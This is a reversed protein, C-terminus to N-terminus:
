KRRELLETALSQFVGTRAAVLCKTPTKHYELIIGALEGRALDPYDHDPTWLRWVAGGSMGQPRKMQKIVGDQVANEPDFNIPLHLDKSLRLVKYAGTNEFSWYDIVTFGLSRKRYDITSERWPFGTAVYFSLGDEPVESLPQIGLDLFEIGWGFASEPLMILAADATPNEGFLARTISVQQFEHPTELFLPGGDGRDVGDLVHKATLLM